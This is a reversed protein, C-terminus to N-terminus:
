SGGGGRVLALARQLEPMTVGLASLRQLDALTVQPNAPAPAPAPPAIPELPPASIRPLASRRAAQRHEWLNLGLAATFATSLAALAETGELRGALTIAVVSAAFLGFLAVKRYSRPTDAGATV